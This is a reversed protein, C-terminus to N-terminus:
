FKPWFGIVAFLGLVGLASVALISLVAIQWEKM